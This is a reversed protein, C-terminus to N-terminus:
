KKLTDCLSDFLYRWIKIKKCVGFENNILALMCIKFATELGRSIDIIYSKYLIGPLLFSKELDVGKM